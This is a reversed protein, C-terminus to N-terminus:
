KGIQKQVLNETPPGFSHTNGEWKRKATPGTKEASPINKGKKQDKPKQNKGGLGAPIQELRQGLQLSLRWREIRAIQRFIGRTGRQAHQDRHHQRQKEGK